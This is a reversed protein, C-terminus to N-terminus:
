DRRAVVSTFDSSIEGAKELERELLLLRYLLRTDSASGIRFNGAIGDLLPHLIAGGYDRRRIMTFRESVLKLIEESRVAEYPSDRGREDLPNPYV